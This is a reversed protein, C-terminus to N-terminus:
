SFGTTSAITQNILFDDAFDIHGGTTTKANLNQVGHLTYHALGTGPHDITLDIQYKALKSTSDRIAGGVPVPFAGIGYMTTGSENKAPAAIFKPDSSSLTDANQLVTYETVVKKGDTGPPSTITIKKVNSANTSTAEIYLFADIVEQGNTSPYVYVTYPRNTTATTLNELYTDRVTETSDSWDLTSYRTWRFNSSSGDVFEWMWRQNQLNVGTLRVQKTWSINDAAVPTRDQHGFLTFVDGTKGSLMNITFRGSSVSADAPATSGKFTLASVGGVDEIAKMLGYRDPSLDTIYIAGTGSFATGDGIDAMPDFVFDAQYPTGSGVVPALPQQGSIPTQGPLLPVQPLSAKPAAPMMGTFSIGFLLIIALVIAFFYKVGKDSTDGHLGYGFINMGTLVIGAAVMLWTISAYSPSSAGGFLVAIIAILLVGSTVGLKAM